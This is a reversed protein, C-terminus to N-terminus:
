GMKNIVGGYGCHCTAGSSVGGPVSAGGVWQGVVAPVCPGPTFVGQSGATSAATQPNAPSMCMGFMPVNVMPITDTPQANMTPSLAQFTGPSTGQSCRVMDGTKLVNPDPM